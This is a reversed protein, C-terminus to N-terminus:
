NFFRSHLINYYVFGTINTVTVSVNLFRDIEAGGKTSTGRILVLKSELDRLDDFSYVKRAANERMIKLSIAGEISQLM